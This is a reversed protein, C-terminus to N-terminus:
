NESGFPDVEVGPLKAEHYDKVLEITTPRTIIISFLEEIDQATLRVCGDSDFSRIAQLDEVYEKTKEDYKWPAGHIGFGKASESCGEVEEAFPIWRTGFIRIMEVKEEQFFGMTGPKYIAIKDGLRYKGVPTLYGSEKVKEKRGIGVHYTKVLVRENKDKDLYYFLMKCKSLDILLYFELNLDKKLVNFRDGLSINQTFYDPKKNLSRAIFHRSTAFHSSYDAIWAPRGQLWPVRSTYAITEVVPFKKMGTNFFSEIRDVDPLEEDVIREKPESEIIEQKEAPSAAIVVEQILTNEETETQKKKMVALAGIVGFLLAAGFFLYKPISRRM